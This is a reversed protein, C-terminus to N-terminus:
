EALASRREFWVALATRSRLGLKLLIRSLHNEVTRESLVLRRAIVANTLGQAVLAAVDNERRTLAADARTGQEGLEALRDLVPILGLREALEVATDIHKSRLRSRHPELEALATLVAARTPLAHIRESQHLAELFHNRAGASDGLVRALAGLACDVPGNYPSCAHAIAHLGAYPRLTDYLSRATREDGLWACVHAADVVAMLFESAWVPTEVVTPALARWEDGAEARRGTAMLAVCLWTRAGFPLHDVQGRVEALLPEVTGTLCAVEFAFPLRLFSADSGDGALQKAEGVLPMVDALRGDLLAQSARILLVKAQWVPGLQEALAALAPLEALLSMRDGRCAHADMQWVHGWAQHEPRGASRGLAVARRGIEVREAARLPDKSSVVDVLMTAFDAEPDTSVLLPVDSGFPDRTADFQSRVRAVYERAGDGASLLVGLARAAVLHARARAAPDVPRRVLTAAEAVVAFDSTGISCEIVDSCADLAEAMSGAAYTKRARQLESAGDVPAVTPASNLPEGRTARGGNVM